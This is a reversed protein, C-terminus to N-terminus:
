RGFKIPKGSYLNMFKKYTLEPIDADTFVDDNLGHMLNRWNYTYKPHDLYMYKYVTYRIDTSDGYWYYGNSFLVKQIMISQQQNEIKIKFPRITM